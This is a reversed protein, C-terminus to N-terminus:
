MEKHVQVERMLLVERDAMKDLMVSVAEDAVDRLASVTWPYLNDQVDLPRIRADGTYVTANYTLASGQWKSVSIRTEAQSSDDPLVIVLMIRTEM